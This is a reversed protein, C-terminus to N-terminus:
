REVGGKVETTATGGEMKITTAGGEVETFIQEKKELPSHRAPVFFHKLVSSFKTSWTTETSKEKNCDEEVVEWEELITTEGEMERLRFVLHAIIYKYQKCYYNIYFKLYTYSKFCLLIM